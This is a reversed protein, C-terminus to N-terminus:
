PPLPGKYQRCPVSHWSCRGSLAVPAHTTDGATIRVVKFPGHMWQRLCATDIPDYHDNGTAYKRRYTQYQKDNIRDKDVIIYPGPALALYGHGDGQTRLTDIIPRDVDNLAKDAGPAADVLRVYHPGNWPLAHRGDEQILLAGGCHPDTWTSHIHLIGYPGTGPAM